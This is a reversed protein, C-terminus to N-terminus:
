EKLGTSFAGSTLSNAFPYKSKATNTLLGDFHKNFYDPLWPLWNKIGATMPDDTMQITVSKLRVGSGFVEEFNDQKVCYRKPWGRHGPCVEMEVVKEVTIPDEINKFYIFTPYWDPDIEKPETKLTSYYSLGEKSRLPDGGSFPFIKLPLWESFDYAYFQMLNEITELEDREAAHLEISPM